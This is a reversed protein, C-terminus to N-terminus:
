FGWPGHWFLHGLGRRLNLVDMTEGPSLLFRWGLRVVFVLPIRCYFTHASFSFTM